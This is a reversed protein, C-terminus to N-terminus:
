AALHLPPAMGRGRLGADGNRQKLEDRSTIRNSTSIYTFYGSDNLFTSSRSCSRPM